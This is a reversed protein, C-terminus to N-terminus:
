SKVEVHDELLPIQNVHVKMQTSNTEGTDGMCTGTQYGLFDVVQWFGCRLERKQVEM